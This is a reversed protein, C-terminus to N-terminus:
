AEHLGILKRCSQLSHGRKEVQLLAPTHVAADVAAAAAGSVHVMLFAQLAEDFCLRSQLVDVTL